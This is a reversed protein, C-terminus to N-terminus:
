LLNRGDYISFWHGNMTQGYHIRKSIVLKRLVPVVDPGFKDKIATMTVSLPRQRTRELEYIQDVIFDLVEDANM